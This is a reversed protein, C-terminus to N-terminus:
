DTPPEEIGEEQKKMALKWYRSKNIKNGRCKIFNMVQEKTEKVYPPYDMQGDRRLCFIKFYTKKDVVILQGFSSFWEQEDNNGYKDQYEQETWVM